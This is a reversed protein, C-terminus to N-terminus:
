TLDSDSINLYPSSLVEIYSSCDSEISINEFSLSLLDKNFLSPIRFKRTNATDTNRRATQKQLERQQRRSEKLVPLFYAAFEKIRKLHSDDLDALIHSTWLDNRDIDVQDDALALSPTRLRDLQIELCWKDIQTSVNPTLSTAEQIPSRTRSIIVHEYTGLSTSSSTSLINNYYDSSGNEANDHIGSLEDDTRSSSIIADNESSSVYNLLTQTDRGSISPSLRLDFDDEPSPLNSSGYAISAQIAPLSGQNHPMGFRIM